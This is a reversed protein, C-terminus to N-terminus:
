SSSNKMMPSQFDHYKKNMQYWNTTFLNSKAPMTLPFVRVQLEVAKSGKDSEVKVVGAYTGPVADRPIDITFWISQYRDKPIAISREESLYDPFLAPAKRLLSEGRAIDTNEKMPVSRVFNYHVRDSPISAHTTQDVLTVPLVRVAGLDAGALVVAQASITEGRIGFIDIAKGKAPLKYGDEFVKV